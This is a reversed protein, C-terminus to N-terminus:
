LKSSLGELSQKLKKMDPFNIENKSLYTNLLDKAKKKQDLGAYAKALPEVVFFENIGYSNKLAKEGVSVAEKFKKLELLVRLERRQLDGNNPDHKLLERVLVLADEYKESKMTATLVRLSPGTQKSNINYIKSQEVVKAWAEKANLKAIDAAEANMFAVYVGELGTYEGVSDTALASKLLEKNGLLKQTLDNSEQALKQVEKSDEPLEEMLLVRWYLSRTSDGEQKLAAQLTKVYQGKLKTDKKYQARALEIKSTLYEKPKPDIKELIALAKEYQASHFYRPWLIKQLEPTQAKKELEVISEPQSNVNLVVDQIFSIPQYDLFRVIDEGKSTLFLTTPYGKVNYKELIPSNQFQDVDVKVKVYDRTLEQFASTNFVENELRLCAPCWRAGFEVFVNQKLKEALKLSYEFDEFFGHKNSKTLKSKKVGLQANPTSTVKKSGIDAINIMHVECFTVKDDCVYLNVVAAKEDKAPIQAEFHRNSFASPKIFTKGVQVGNPAKENFHYGAELDAKFVNSKYETKLAKKSRMEPAAFALFPVLVILSLLTM